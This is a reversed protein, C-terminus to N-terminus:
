RAAGGATLLRDIAARAADVVGASSGACREIRSVSVQSIGAERALEEQSLGLARRM